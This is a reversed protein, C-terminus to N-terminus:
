ETETIKFRIGFITHTQTKPLTVETFYKKITNVRGNTKLEIQELEKETLLEHALFESVKYKGYYYLDKNRTFYKM